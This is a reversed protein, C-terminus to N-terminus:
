VSRYLQTANGREAHLDPWTLYQDAKAEEGHPGQFRVMGMPGLCMDTAGIINQDGPFCVWDNTGPRLVTLQGKSGMEAVTAEATIFSLGALMSRRIKENKIEEALSQEKTEGQTKNNM